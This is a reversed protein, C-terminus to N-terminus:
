ASPQVQPDQTVLNQVTSSSATPDTIMSGCTAANEVSDTPTAPAILPLFASNRIPTEAVIENVIGALNGALGQAQSQLSCDFTEVFEDNLAENVYPCPLHFLQRWILMFTMYDVVEPRLQSTTEELYHKINLVKSYKAKTAKHLPEESPSTAELVLEHIFKQRMENLYRGSNSTM